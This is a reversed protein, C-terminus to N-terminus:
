YLMTTGTPFVFEFASPPLPADPALDIVEADGPSRGASRDRGTPPHRRDRPRGRDLATTRDTAPSRSRGRTIAPRAPDGRPRDRAGHRHDRLARDVAREPLLRGPPRVHRAPDGDAAGDGARLGQSPARSTRPRRPRAAPQPGPAPHRAQPRGRVNSRPRRGLDLDRLRGRGRRGRPEDHGQCRRSPSARRRADHGRRRARDTVREEIRMRLTAFRLEADRMFDFLTPRRRCARRCPRSRPCGARRRRPRAPRRRPGM